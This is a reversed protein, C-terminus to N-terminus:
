GGVARCARQVSANTASAFTDLGLGNPCVKGDLSISGLGSKMPSEPISDGKTSVEELVSSYSPRKLRASEGCLLGHPRGRHICNVTMTLYSAHNLPLLLGPSHIATVEVTRCISDALM